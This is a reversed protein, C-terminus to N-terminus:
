SSVLKKQLPYWPTLSDLELFASDDDCGPYIKELNSECVRLIGTDVLTFYGRVRKFLLLLLDYMLSRELAPTLSANMYVKRARQAAISLRWAILLGYKVEGRM